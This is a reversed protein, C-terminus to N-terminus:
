SSSSSSSVPHSLSLSSSTTGDLRGDHSGDGHVGSFSSSATNLAMYRSAM